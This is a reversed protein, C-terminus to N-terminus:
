SEGRSLLAAASDVLGALRWAWEDDDPDRAEVAAAYAALWAATEEDCQEPVVVPACQWGEPWECAKVCRRPDEYQLGDMDLAIASDDTELRGDKAWDMFEYCGTQPHKPAGGRVFWWGEADPPGDQWALGDLNKAPKVM